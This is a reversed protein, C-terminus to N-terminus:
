LAHSLTEEEATVVALGAVLAPVHALVPLALADAEEVDVVVHPHQVVVLLVRGLAAELVNEGRNLKKTLGHQSIREFSFVYRQVM